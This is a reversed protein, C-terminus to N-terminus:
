LKKKLAALKDHLPGHSEEEPDNGLAMDTTGAKRPYPNIGLVFYEEALQGVDITDGSFLEPADEGEADLLIEGEASRKPVALRSGEPLFLASIDEDVTEEVPDLTVVCEQVIDARVRGVVKVGGKRWATVHLDARFREVARLGHEAALAQRQEEDAELVVPMGKQPLRAVSVPFSIPSEAAPKM